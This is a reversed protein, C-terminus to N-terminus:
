KIILVIKEQSGGVFIAKFKVKGFITKINSM